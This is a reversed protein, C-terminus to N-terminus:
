KVLVKVCRGEAAVLYIGAPVQLSGASVNSAVQRGDLAFVSAGHAGGRFHISGKGGFAMPAENSVSINQVGVYVPSKVVCANETLGTEANIVYVAVRVKTPDKVDSLTIEKEYTYETDADMNLPLSGEVGLPASCNRAVDNYKLQVKSGKSGFGYSEDDPYGSLYNTQVYPGVEDEVVTYGIKYEENEVALAFKANATLKIVKPDDTTEIQASIGAFAPVTVADTYAYDLDEPSPYVDGQDRNFYSSPFGSVFNGFFDYAMGEEMVEMADGSHVAVGVFGDAGYNEAMYEMGAYGIVCYGCWTGTAEEVLPQKSYGEDICLLFGEVADAKLNVEEGNIASIYLKYPINNGKTTCTFDMYDVSTELYELPGYELGVSNHQPEMDGIEMTFTLTKVLNAALNQTLTGIEFPTGPKVYAPVLKDSIAVNNVPLMDGNLRARLCINGFDPGMDEWHYEADYIPWYNDDWGSFTSYVLCGNPNPTHTGDVMLAYINSDEPINMTYGIYFETDKKITYASPLQIENWSFGMEGLTGEAKLVPEADLSESIWVTCSKIPNQYEYVMLEYNPTATNVDVPSVVSVSTLTAGAYETALDATFKVAGKYEGYNTPVATYIGECYSWNMSLGEDARTAVQQRSAVAGKSDFVVSKPLPHQGFRLQQGVHPRLSPAAYGSVAMVGAAIILLSKKM